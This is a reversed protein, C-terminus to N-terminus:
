RNSNTEMRRGSKGSGEKCQGGVATETKRAKRKGNVKQSDSKKALKEDGMREM